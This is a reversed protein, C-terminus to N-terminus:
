EVEKEKAKTELWTNVKTKSGWCSGPLNNYIYSVIEFMACLNNEDARGFAECLNNELVALLFGGTPCGEDVYRQLSEKVDEPCENM